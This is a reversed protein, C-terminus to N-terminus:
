MCNQKELEVLFHDTITFAWPAHVAHRLYNHIPISHIICQPVRWFRGRKRLGLYLLAMIDMYKEQLKHPIPKIDVIRLNSYNEAMWYFFDNSAFTIHLPTQLYWHDELSWSWTWSDMNGTSILLRGGPKLYKMANIISQVPHLLHEFVDFMTAADFYNEWEKSPKELWEEIIHIGHEVPIRKAKSPEIGFKQWKEPM